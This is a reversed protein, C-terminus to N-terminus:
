RRENMEEKGIGERIGEKGRGRKNSENDHERTEKWSQKKGENERERDWLGGLRWERVAGGNERM